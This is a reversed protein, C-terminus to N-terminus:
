CVAAIVDVFCTTFAAMIVARRVDLRHRMPKLGGAVTELDARTEASFSRRDPLAVGRIGEHMTAYVYCGRIVGELEDDTGLVLTSWSEGKWKRGFQIFHPHLVRLRSVGTFEHQLLNDLAQVPTLGSTTQNSTTRGNRHNHRIISIM